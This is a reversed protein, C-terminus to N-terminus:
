AAGGTGAALPLLVAWPALLALRGRWRAFWRRWGARGPTAAETDAIARRVEPLGAHPLGRGWAALLAKHCLVNVLRPVGGSARAIRRVAAREFLPATAGAARTRHAVFAAVGDASLPRLRCSFTIRQRLQRLDRGALRRDLEPQGFLVVQVLKRRETELNTLLRVAELTRDPLAQAEDILVVPRLGEAALEALHRQLADLVQQQSARVPLSLGLERAVAARMTGPSLLPDPLWATRFRDDLTSLLARCLLTKGLGVEGVVKVFGEGQDLAVRLTDLAAEQSPEPWRLALDPTLGFPLSVLGFHSEYM